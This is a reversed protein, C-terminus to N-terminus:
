HKIHIQDEEPLKKKLLSLNSKESAETKSVPLFRWCRNVSVHLKQFCNGPEWPKRQFRFSPKNNKPHLRSKQWGCNMQDRNLWQETQRQFHWLSTPQQFQWDLPPFKRWSRSEQPWQDAIQPHCGGFEITQKAISEWKDSLILIINRRAVLIMETCLNAESVFFLCCLCTWPQAHGNGHRQPGTLAELLKFFGFIVLKTMQRFHSEWQSDVYNWHVFPSWHGLLSDCLAFEPHTMMTVMFSPTSCSKFQDRFWAFHLM